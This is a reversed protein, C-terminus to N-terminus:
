WNRILSFTLPELGRLEVMVRKSSVRVPFVDALVATLSDQSTAAGGRRKSNGARLERRIPTVTAADPKSVGALEKQRQYVWNAEHIEDFPPNLV